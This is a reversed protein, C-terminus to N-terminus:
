ALVQFRPNKRFSYILASFTLSIAFIIVGGLIWIMFFPLCVSRSSESFTSSSAAQPLILGQQEQPSPLESAFEKDVIMLEPSSIDVDIADRRRIERKSTTRTEDTSSIELGSGEDAFDDVNNGTLNLNKINKLLRFVPDPTPFDTPLTVTTTPDIVMRQTTTSTAQTTTSTTSSPTTSTTQTILEDRALENGLPEADEVPSSPAANCNPKYCDGSISPCIQIQCNFRVSNQDPFNFANSNVFAKTRNDNYIIHPMIYVDESCGQTDIVKRNNSAEGDVVYCDHVFMEYTDSPCEWVHYLVDGVQAFKALPGNPSGKHITYLCTPQDSEKALLTPTPDSVSVEAGVAKETEKYFCRVRYARDVKTTFLPHLQVVVTLTYAMGKPSVERQRSVDCKNFEFTANPSNSFSCGEKKFHGKVFVHSPATGKETTVNLHLEGNSCHIQPQDPISNDFEIIAKVNYRALVALIVLFYKM